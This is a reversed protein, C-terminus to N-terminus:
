RRRRRTMGAFGMALASLVAPTPVYRSQDQSESNTWGDLDTYLWGGEGLSSVMDFVYGEVAGGDFQGQIAGFEFSMQALMDDSTTATFNEHTIEWAVLQFASARADADTGAYVGGRSPDVWRAYLDRLLDARAEGMAGPWPPSNPADEIDVVDFDYIGGVDVGSYIQICHTLYTEGVDDTWYHEFTRLNYYHETGTHEDWDFQANVAVQEYGGYGYGDLQVVLDAHSSCTVLLM